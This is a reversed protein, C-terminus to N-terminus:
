LLTYKEHHFIGLPYIKDDRLIGIANVRQNGSISLWRLLKSTEVGKEVTAYNKKSDHVLWKDQQKLLGVGQLCCITESQWPNQRLMEYQLAFADTWDQLFLPKTGEALINQKKVVARYPLASPFFALEAEISSGPVLPNEIPTFRTAFNLVLAQRQTSAGILWNKQVTLDGEDNVEQGAVLWEDAVVEAEDSSLLEKASQSWGVLNKITAQWVPSLSEYNKFTKVLLFLRSILKLANEQWVGEEAFDLKQFLKVWNSLGPAKADIMRTAVRNFEAEPKSPLELIGIRVLDKLWLELEDVGAAVEEFRQAQTKEKAKERRELKEPSLDEEKAPKAAKAERKDLWTKVWEPEETVAFDDPANAYFLMAGVGHKCPFQRSPCSCKSSFSQIDIATQYPNKGSGKIEGWIARESKGYTIWKSKGALSKGAKFAAPNPSLTEIQQATFDM